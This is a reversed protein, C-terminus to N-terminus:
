TYQNYEPPGCMPLYGEMDSLLHRYHRYCFPTKYTQPSIGDTYEILGYVVLKLAERNANLRSAAADRMAKTDDSWPDVLGLPFSDRPGIFTKDRLSDVGYIPPVQMDKEPSLHFAIFPGFCAIIHAPSKGYNFMNLEFIAKATQPIPKAKVQVMVWPREANILAKANLSAATAADGTAKTQVILLSYSKLALTTGAAAILVLICTLILSICDVWDRNVSVSSPEAIRVTQETNAKKEADAKQKSANPAVPQQATKSAGSPAEDGKSNNSIKQSATTKDNAAKRPAPPGTQVVTLLMALALIKM